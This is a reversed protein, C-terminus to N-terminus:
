LLKLIPIQLLIINWLFSAGLIKPDRSNLVIKQPTAGFLIQPGQVVAHMNSLGVQTKNFLEKPYFKLKHEENQAKLYKLFTM